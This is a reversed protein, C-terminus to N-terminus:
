THCPLTGRRSRRMAVLDFEAVAVLGQNLGGVILLAATLVDRPKM